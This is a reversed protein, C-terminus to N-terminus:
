RGPSTSRRQRGDASGHVVAVRERVGRLGDLGRRTLATAARPSGRGVSGVLWAGVCTLILAAFWILPTGQWKHYDPWLRWVLWATLAIGVTISLFGFAQRLRTSFPALSPLMPEGPLWLELGRLAQAAIFMAAVLLMWPWWEERAWEQRLQWVIVGGFFLGVILAFLHRLTHTDAPAAARVPKILADVTQNM